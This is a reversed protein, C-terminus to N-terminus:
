VKEYYITLREAIKSVDEGDIIYFDNTTALTNQAYVYEYLHAKSHDFHRITFRSDLAYIEMENQGISCIMSDVPLEIKNELPFVYLSGDIMAYNQVVTTAVSGVAQDSTYLGNAVYRGVALFNIEHDFVNKVPGILFYSCLFVAAGLFQYITKKM